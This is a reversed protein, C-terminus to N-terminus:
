QHVATKRASVRLLVTASGPNRPGVSQPLNQRFDSVGNLAIGRSTLVDNIDEEYLSLGGRKPDPWLLRAAEQVKAGFVEMPFYSADDILSFTKWFLLDAKHVGLGAENAIDYFIAAFYLSSLDSTTPGDAPTLGQPHRFPFIGEHDPSGKYYMMVNRINEARTAHSSEKREAALTSKGVPGIRLIM